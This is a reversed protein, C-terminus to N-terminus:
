AALHFVSSRGVPRFGLRAYLDKPWDGDDAIIFTLEHRAGLAAAHAVLTRAHGRGRAEPATYVNEVQAVTGDSRLNAIAVLRGDAGAIGFHRESSARAQRRASQDLQELEDPGPNSEEISWRRLLAVVDEEDPEIVDSRTPVEPPDALTMFVEREVKWGAARAQRELTAGEEVVLHRYPLDALHRDALEVAQAFEIEADIHVHNVAWVAPLEGTRVLWGQDIRLLDSGAREATQRM